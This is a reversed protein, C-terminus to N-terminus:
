PRKRESLREKKPVITMDSSESSVSLLVCAKKEARLAKRAEKEEKLM